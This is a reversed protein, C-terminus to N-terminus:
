QKKRSVGALGFIGIALLSITSPIPVPSNAGYSLADFTLSGGATAHDGFSLQVSSFAEINSVGFFQLNLPDFPVAALNNGVLVDTYSNNLGDSFSMNVFNLDNVDIGFYNIPNVFNFTVVVATGENFGLANTGDTVFRTPLTDHQNLTGTSISVTFEDAGAANFTLASATSFPSEFSESYLSVGSAAVDFAARDSGPDNFYYVPAAIATGFLCVSFLLFSLGFLMKKM